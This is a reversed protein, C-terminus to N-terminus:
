TVSAMIIWHLISASKELKFASEAKLDKKEFNGVFLGTTKINSHGGGGRPRVHQKAHTGSILTVLQWLLCKPEGTKRNSNQNKPSQITSYCGYIM